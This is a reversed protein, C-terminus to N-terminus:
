PRQAISGLLDCLADPMTIHPNHTGDLEYCSWGQEGKARDHFRQFNHPATRRCWVYSRPLTLPGRQLRLKEEFCKLPQPVRRPNSWAFDEPPTDVPMAMPPIRWGDGQSKALERFHAQTEPSQLDLLSQGDQPVFADLYVLQAVQERARDAVGTAVMGGYSHGILIVDRLDEYEIVGLVDKIHTELGVEPTALHVREGLGTLTPTMLRHGAARLLPHM